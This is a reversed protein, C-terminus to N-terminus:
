ARRPRHFAQADRAGQRRSPAPDSGPIRPDRRPRNHLSIRTRAMPKRSGVGARIAPWTSSRRSRSINCGARASRARRSLVGPLRTEPDWTSALAIAQPFSTADRAVYGHLAEEHMLIPIGLRTHEVAWHQAANVISPPRDRCRPKGSRGSSGRCREVPLRRSLRVPARLRRHREPLEQRRLESSFDGGCDAAEGKAGLDDRAARGERRADNARPPRRRTKRGATRSGQLHAGPPEASRAHAAILSAGTAAVVIWHRFRM